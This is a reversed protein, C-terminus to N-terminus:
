ATGDRLHTRWSAACPLATVRCWTHPRVLTHSSSPAQAPEKREAAAGSPKWDVGSREPVLVRRRPPVADRVRHTTHMPTRGQACSAVRSVRRSAPTHARTHIRVCACVNACVHVCVHVHVRACMHMCVACTHRHLCCRAPPHPSCASASRASLPRRRRRAPCPAPPRGRASLTCWARASSKLRRARAGKAAAPLAPLPCAAALM